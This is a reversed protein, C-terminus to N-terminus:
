GRALGFSEGAAIGIRLLHLLPTPRLRPYKTAPRAPKNSHQPSIGSSPTWIGHAPDPHEQNKEEDDNTEPPLLHSPPPSLHLAEEGILDRKERKQPQEIQREEAADPPLRCPEGEYWRPPQVASKAM